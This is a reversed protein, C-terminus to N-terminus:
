HEQPKPAPDSAPQVSNDIVVPAGNRLKIQGSTVVEDGEKIGSLVTVQDGRRAGTTVFVQRAVLTDSPLAAGAQAEDPKAPTDGAKGIVYVTEGYPNAIIAAQPLTLYPTPAGVSISLRAFMGPLLKHEANALTARLQVNRTETDVRPDIAAITGKFVTDPFADVHAEVRQGVKLQALAQQPLAFDAFLTDLAQLTVVKSGPQLYQGLDVARIGLQGAFPARLTKKDVLAQQEAVQARASRLTAQDNDLVAQSIAQAEFQQTDRKYVSEALQLSAKLSDLKAIDDHARLQLLLQGAKVNDGSRFQIADVIGGAEVSLDAGREARLSAVADLAPSWDSMAAKVTSVTSKPVGQAKFGDMMQKVQYGKIGGLVLVLVIIAGVFVIWRKM